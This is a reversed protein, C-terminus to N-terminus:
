KFDENKDGYTQKKNTQNELLVVQLLTYNLLINMKNGYKKYFVLVQKQEVSFSLFVLVLVM